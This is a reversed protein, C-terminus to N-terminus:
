TILPRKFTTTCSHVIKNPGHPGLRSRYSTPVFSSRIVTTSCLRRQFVIGLVAGTRAVARYIESSRSVDAAFVTKNKRLASSHYVAEGKNSKVIFVFELIIHYSCFLIQLTCVSIWPKQKEEQHVAPSNRYPLRGEHTVNVAHKGNSRIYSYITMFFLFPCLKIKQFGSFIFRFLFGM